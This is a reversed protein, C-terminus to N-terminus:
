RPAPWGQDGAPEDGPLNEEGPVDPTAPPVAQEPAGMHEKPGPPTAYPASPAGAEASPEAAPQEYRVTPQGAPEAPRDPPESMDHQPAARDFEEALPPNAEGPPPQEAGTSRYAPVPQAAPQAPPSAPAAEQTGSGSIPEALAAQDAASGAASPGAQMAVDRAVVLVDSGITVLKGAPITVSQGSLANGQRVILATLNFGEPAFDFDNVNGLFRGDESVVRAGVLKRGARASTQAEGADKGSRM